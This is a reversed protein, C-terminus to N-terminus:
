KEEKAKNAYEKPTLGVINKFHRNFSVKSNFGSQFAIDEISSDNEEEDALLRCAHEVRYKNIYQNFNEGIYINFLQTLHHIPMKLKKALVDLTLENDLYVHEDQIVSDLKVKYDKLVAITLASKNYKQLPVSPKSVIEEKGINGKAKKNLLLDNKENGYFNDVKYKFAFVVSIFIGGYIVLGPLKVKILEHPITRSFVVGTFIFAMAVLSLGSTIFLQKREKINKGGTDKNFVMAWFAYGFLSIAVLSYLIIYFSILYEERFLPNAILIAYAIVFALFPAFHFYLQKMILKKELLALLGFYFFPGYALGFPATLDVLKDAGFFHRSAIAYISHLLVFALYYDCVKDFLVVSAKKRSVYLSALALVVTACLVTDLM